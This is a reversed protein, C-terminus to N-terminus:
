ERATAHSSLPQPVVGSAHLVKAEKGPTVGTDGANSPLNKVM